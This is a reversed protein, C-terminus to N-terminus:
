PGIHSTRTKFSPIFSNVSAFTLIAFHSRLLTPNSVELSSSHTIYPGYCDFHHCCRLNTLDISSIGVSPKLIVLDVSNIREHRPHEYFVFIILWLMTSLKGTLPYRWAYLGDM